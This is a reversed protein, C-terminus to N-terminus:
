EERNDKEVEDMKIAREFQLCMTGGLLALLAAVVIFGHM